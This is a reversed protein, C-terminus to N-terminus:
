RTDITRRIERGSGRRLSAHDPGRNLFRECIVRTEPPAHTSSLVSRPSGPKAPGSRLAAHAHPHVGRSAPAASFGPLRRRTRVQPRPLTAHRRHRALPLVRVRNANPKSVTVRASPRDPGVQRPHRVGEAPHRIWPDRSCGPLSRATPPIRPPDGGRIERRPEFLNDVRSSTARPACTPRSLRTRRGHRDRPQFPFAHRSGRGLIKAFRPIITQTYVALSGSQWVALSSHELWLERRFKSRRLCFTGEYSKSIFVGEQELGNNRTQARRPHAIMSLMLVWRSSGARSTALSRWATPAVRQAARWEFGRLSPSACARAAHEGTECGDRARRPGGRSGREDSIGRGARGGVGAERRHPDRGGREQAERADRVRVLRLM